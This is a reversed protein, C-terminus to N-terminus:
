RKQKYPPATCIYSVLIRHSAPTDCARQPCSQRALLRRRGGWQEVQFASGCCLHVISHSSTRNQNTNNTFGWRIFLFVSRQLISVLRDIHFCSYFTGPGGQIESLGAVLSWTGVTVARSLVRRVYEFDNRTEPNVIPAVSNRSRTLRTFRQRKRQDIVRDSSPFCFTFKLNLGVNRCNRAEKYAIAVAPGAPCTWDDFITV